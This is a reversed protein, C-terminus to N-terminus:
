NNCLEVKSIWKKDDTVILSSMEKCWRAYVPAGLSHEGERFLCGFYRGDSVSFMQMCRNFVDCVFLNGQDDSTIRYANLNKKMGSLRGNVSWELQGTRTKFSFIGEDYHASVLFEEDGDRACTLDSLISITTLRISKDKLKMENCDFWRVTRPRTSYDSFILTSPSATTLYYPRNPQITRSSIITTVNNM